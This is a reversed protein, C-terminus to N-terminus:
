KDSKARLTADIKKRAYAMRDATVFEIARKLASVAVTIQEASFEGGRYSTTKVANSIFGSLRSITAKVGTGQAASGGPKLKAGRFKGGFKEIAPIWGARIANVGRRRAALIRLMEQAHQMRGWLKPGKPPNKGIRNNLNISALAPLLGNSELQQVVRQQSTKPTFSAARFAVDKLAKNVIDAEDKKTVRQVERLAASFQRLNTCKVTVSM